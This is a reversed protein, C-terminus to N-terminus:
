SATSRWRARASPWTGCAEIEEGARPVGRRDARKCRSPTRRDPHTSRTACCPPWRRTTRRQEVPELYEAGGEGRTGVGYDALIARAAQVMDLDRTKAVKESNGNTITKFRVMTKEVEKRADLAAKAAYVNILQGQKEAAATQIDGAKFAKDAARGARKAAATFKDPRLQNIPTRRVIQEAYAQAAKALVAPKGAAKQLATLETQVFRIHAKQHLAENVARDIAEESTLDGHRELMRQDVLQNIMASPTPVAVLADVMERGSQFGGLMEAVVDPDLGGDTATMRAKILQQVVPSDEGFMHRLM